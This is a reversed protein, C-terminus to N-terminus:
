RKMPNAVMVPVDPDCWEMEHIGDQDIIKPPHDPHIVLIMGKYSTIKSGALITGLVKTGDRKEM